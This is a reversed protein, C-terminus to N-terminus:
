EFVPRMIITALSINGYITKKIQKSYRLLLYQVSLYVGSIVVFTFIGIPTPIKLIICTQHLKNTDPNTLGYHFFVTTKRFQTNGIYLFLGNRYMIEEPKLYPLFLKQNVGLRKFALRPTLARQLLM